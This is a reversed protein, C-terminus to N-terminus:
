ITTVETQKAARIGEIKTLTDQSIKEIEAEWRKREDESIEKKEFLTRVEKRAEDRARRVKERGEEAYRSVLKAYKERQEGTLPPTKVRIVTGQVAVNFGMQADRLTSEIDQTTSPDFPSVIIDTPGDVTLTALEMVRLTTQGGYTKVAINEIMSSSARGTRITALNERTLQVIRDCGSRFPSINEM